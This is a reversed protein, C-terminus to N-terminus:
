ASVVPTPYMLNYLDWWRSELQRIEQRMHHAADDIDATLGNDTTHANFILEGLERTRAESQNLLVSMEQLTQNTAQM